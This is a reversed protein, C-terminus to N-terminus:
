TGSSSKLVIDTKITPWRSACEPPLRPLLEEVSATSLGETGPDGRVNLISAVNTTEVLSSWEGKDWLRGSVWLDTDLQTFYNLSGKLLSAYRAGHDTKAFAQADLIPWR